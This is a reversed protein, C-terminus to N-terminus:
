CRGRAVHSEGLIQYLLDPDRANGTRAEVVIRAVACRLHTEGKALFFFRQGGSLLSECLQPGSRIRPACALLAFRLRFGKWSRRLLTIRGATETIERLTQVQPTSLYNAFDKASM